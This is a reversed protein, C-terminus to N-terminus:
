DYYDRPHLFMCRNGFSCEDGARCPKVPHRFKCNRNSCTPWYDCRSKMPPTYTQRQDEIMELRTLRKKGTGRRSAAKKGNGNTINNNNNNQRAKQQPQQQAAVADGAEVSYLSMPQQHVPLPLPKNYQFEPINILSPWGMSYQPMPENQPQQWYSSSKTNNNNSSADNGSSSSSTAPYSREEQKASASSSSTTSSSAVPTPSSPVITEKITQQQETIEVTPKQQETVIETVKTVVVYDEEENKTNNDLPQKETTMTRTATTIPEQCTTSENQITISETEKKEPQETPQEITTATTTTTTTEDKPENKKNNIDPTVTTPDNESKKNESHANKNNGPLSRTSHSDKTLYKYCLVSGLTIVFTSVIVVSPRAFMNRSFAM